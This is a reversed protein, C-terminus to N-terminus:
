AQRVSPVGSHGNERAARRALGPSLGVGVVRGNLVALWADAPASPPVPVALVAELADLHDSHGADGVAGTRWQLVTREPRRRHFGGHVAIVPGLVTMLPVASTLLGAWTLLALAATVAAGSVGAALGSSRGFARTATLPFLTLMLLDGLGISVGSVSFMPAFPLGQVERALRGTLDSLGTAALDYGALVAAFAAVHRSRLGGQAWLNAVGVVALALEVDSVATAGVLSGAWTVLSAAGLAATIVTAPRSGVVPALALHVATLIMAGFATGVVAKPLALYGLPALVVMVSLVVVDLGRFVGIPPLPLTFRDFYLAAVCILACVCATLGAPAAWGPTV